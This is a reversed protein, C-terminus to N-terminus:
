HRTFSIVRSFDFRVESSEFASRSVGTGTSRARERHVRHVSITGGVDDSPSVGAFVSSPITAGSADAACRVSSAGVRAVDVFFIDGSERAADATSWAIEVAPQSSALQIPARQGAVRIGGFSLDAVEFPSTGALEFAAVGQSGSGRVSYRTGPVVQSLEPNNGYYLVGGVLGVPDPVQRPVLPFAHQVHQASQGAPASAVSLMGVDALELAQGASDADNRDLSV